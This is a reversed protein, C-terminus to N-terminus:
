MWLLLECHLLTGTEDHSLGSEANCKTKYDPLYVLSFTAYNHLWWLRARPLTLGQSSRLHQFLGEPILTSMLPHWTGSHCWGIDLAESTFVYQTTLLLTSKYLGVYGRRAQKHAPTQINTYMQTFQTCTHSHKHVHTHIHVHTHVCTHINTYMHTFTQTYTHSHKHVHTHISTFLARPCRHSHKQSHSCTYINTYMHM